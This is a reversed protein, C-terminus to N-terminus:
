KKDNTHFNTKNFPKIVKQILISQKKM